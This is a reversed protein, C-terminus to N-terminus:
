STTENESQIISYYFGAPSTRLNDHPPENNGRMQLGGTWWETCEHFWIREGGVLGHVSCCELWILPVHERQYATFRGAKQVM